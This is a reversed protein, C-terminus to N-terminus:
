EQPAPAGAPLRRSVPALSAVWAAACIVLTPDIVPIRFREQPFFVVSVLVASAALLWMAWGDAWRRDAVLRGIGAIAACLLLVYSVLSTAFYLTSHLRYSPGIPLFTYVLKRGLLAIWRAPERRIFGFADAYYAADLEAASAGEHQAEFGVRARAMVPNAALDGEGTSLANNGTWFTIGGHPATLVFRGYVAYNRAIWPTLVLAVGLCFFGAARLRRRSLLWAVALPVFFLMAEKTLVAAGAAIGAGLVLGLRSRGCRLARQLLWVTGLALACYLTEALVYGSIWALPPYVAALWAAAVAGADGAAQRACMAILLICLSGVLVQAIKVAAPV